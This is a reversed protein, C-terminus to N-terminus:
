VKLIIDLDFDEGVIAFHNSVAREVRDVIERCMCQVMLHGLDGQVVAFMQERLFREGNGHGRTPSHTLLSFSAIQRQRYELIRPVSDIRPM